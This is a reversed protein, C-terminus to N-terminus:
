SGNTAEAIGTAILIVLAMCALFQMVQSGRSDRAIERLSQGLRKLFRKVHYV